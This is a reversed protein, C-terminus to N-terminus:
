NSTGAHAAHFTKNKQCTNISRGWLYTITFHQTTTTTAPGLAAPCHVILTSNVRDVTSTQECSGHSQMCVRICHLHYTTGQESQSGNVSPYVTIRNHQIATRASPHHVSWLLLLLIPQGILQCQQCAVHSQHTWQTGSQIAATM